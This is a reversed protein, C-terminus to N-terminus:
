DRPIEFPVDDEPAAERERPADDPEVRLTDDPDMSYPRIDEM